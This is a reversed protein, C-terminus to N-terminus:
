VTCKGSKTLVSFLKLMKPACNPTFSASGLGDFAAVLFLSDAFVFAVSLCGVSLSSLLLPHL